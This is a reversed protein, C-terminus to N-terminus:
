TMQGCELIKKFHDICYNIIKIKIYFLETYSCIHFKITKNDYYIIYGGTTACIIYGFIEFKKIIKNLQDESMQEINDLSEYWEM